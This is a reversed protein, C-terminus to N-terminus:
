TSTPILKDLAERLVSLFFPKFIAQHIPSDKLRTLVIDPEDGTIALIPIAPGYNEGGVVFFGTKQQLM